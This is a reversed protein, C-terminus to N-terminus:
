TESNQVFMTSISSNHIYELLIKKPEIVVEIPNVNETVLLDIVSKDIQQTVSVILHLTAHDVNILGYKTLGQLLTKAESLKMRLTDGRLKTKHPFINQKLAWEDSVNFYSISQQQSPYQFQSNHYQQIVQTPISNLIYPHNVIAEKQNLLPGDVELYLCEPCPDNSIISPEFFLVQEGNAFTIVCVNDSVKSGIQLCTEYDYKSRGNYDPKCEHERIDALSFESKLKSLESRISELNEKRSKKEVNLLFDSSLQFDVLFELLNTLLSTDKALIEVPIDFLKQLHSKVDILLIGFMSEELQMQRVSQLFATQEESMSITADKFQQISPLTIVELAVEFWEQNRIVLGHKMDIKNDDLFGVLFVLYVGFHKSNGHLVYSSQDKGFISRHWGHLFIDGTFNAIVQGESYIRPQPSLNQMLRTYTSIMVPKSNDHPVAYISVIGEVDSSSKSRVPLSFVNAHFQKPLLHSFYFQSYTEINQSTVEVGIASEVGKRMTQKVKEIECFLLTSLLELHRMCNLLDKESRLKNLGKTMSETQKELLLSGIRKRTLVRFEEEGQVSPKFIIPIIPLFYPSSDNWVITPNCFDLLVNQIDEAWRNIEKIFSLIKDVAENRLPSLLNTSNLVIHYRYQASDFVRFADPPILRLLSSLEVENTTMDVQPLTCQGNVAPVEMSCMRAESWSVVEAPERKQLTYLEHQITCNWSCKHTQRHQQVSQEYENGNEDIQRVRRYVPLPKDYFSEEILQCQLHRKHGVVVIEHYANAKHWLEQLSSAPFGVIQLTSYFSSVALNLVFEIQRYYEEYTEPIFYNGEVAPNPYVYEGFEKEIQLSSERLSKKVEPSFEFAIYDEFTQSDQGDTFGLSSKSLSFLWCLILLVLSFDRRYCVM